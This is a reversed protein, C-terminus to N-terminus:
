TSCNLVGRYSEFLILDEDEMEKRAERECHASASDEQVATMKEDGGVGVM